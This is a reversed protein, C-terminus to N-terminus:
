DSDSSSSSSSAGWKGGKFSKSAMYGGAGLAAVPLGYKAAKKAKKAAKKDMMGGGMGGSMMRGGMGGGMMGGMAGLSGMGGMKPSGMGLASAAIKGKSGLLGGALAGGAM